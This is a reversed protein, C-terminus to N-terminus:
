RNPGGPNNMRGPPSQIPFGQMGQNKGSANGANAKQQQSVENHVSNRVMERVQEGIGAGNNEMSRTRIEAVVDKLGRAIGQAVAQVGYGLRELKEAEIAAQVAMQARLLAANDGLTEKEERTGYHLAFAVLAPDARKGEQWNMLRAQEIMQMTEEEEWGRQRLQYALQTLFDNTELDQTDAAYLAGMVLAAICVLILIRKM